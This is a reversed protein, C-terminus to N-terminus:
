PLFTAKPNTRALIKGLVTAVAHHDCGYHSKIYRPNDAQMAKECRFNASFRDTNILNLPMEFLRSVSNLHPIVKELENQCHRLTEATGRDIAQLWTPWHGHCSILEDSENDAKAGKVPVKIKKPTEDYRRKKIFLLPRWIGIQVRHTVTELLQGRMMGSIDILGGGCRQTQRGSQQSQKRIDLQMQRELLLQGDLM